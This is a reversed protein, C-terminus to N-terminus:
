SSIREASRPIQGMALGCWWWWWSLKSHRWEVPAWCHLVVLTSTHLNATRMPFAKSIGMCHIQIRVVLRRIVGM